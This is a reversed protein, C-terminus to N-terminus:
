TPEQTYVPQWPSQIWGVDTSCDAVLEETTYKHGSSQGHWYGKKYKFTMAIVKAGQRQIVIVVLGPDTPPNKLSNLIM